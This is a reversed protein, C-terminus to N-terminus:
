SDNNVKTGAYRLDDGGGRHDNINVVYKSVFISIDIDEEVRDSILVLCYRFPKVFTIADSRLPTSSSPAFGLGPSV